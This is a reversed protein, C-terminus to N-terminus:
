IDYRLSSAKVRHYSAKETLKSKLHVCLADKLLAENHKQLFYHWHYKLKQVTENM